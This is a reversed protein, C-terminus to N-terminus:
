NALLFGDPATGGAPSGTAVRLHEITDGSCVHKVEAEIRDIRSDTGFYFVAIAIMNVLLISM